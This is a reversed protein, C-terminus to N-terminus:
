TAIAATDAGSSSPVKCVFLSSLCFHAHVDTNSFQTYSRRTTNRAPPSSVHVAQFRKCAKQGEGQARLSGCVRANSESGCRDM